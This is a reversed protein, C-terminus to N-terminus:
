LLGLNPRGIDDIKFNERLIIRNLAYLKNRHWSYINGRSAVVTTNFGIKRIIDFEKKGVEHRGGFPFSFHKIERGILYELYKKSKYIESFVEEYTLNVLLPHTVTHAGITVIPDKSLEEIQEKSLFLETARDNWNIDYNNLINNLETANGKFHQMIIKRIKMFVDVKEEYTICKFKQGNSLKVENNNIIIDELVHWWIFGNRESFSTTVYITFPINYKKFIKYAIEYNDKYGDDFTFVIQKKVNIKNILIDYLRDISIFEYHKSHLELIFKELFEPSVKLNENPELKGLEFNHVRHLIFITAIGSFYNNVWQIKSLNSLISNTKEKFTNILLTHM